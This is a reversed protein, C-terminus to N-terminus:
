SETGHHPTRPEPHFYLEARAGGEDRNRIRIVGGHLEVIRRTVSLGLGTGEGTANTTYFPDFIKGLQDEPIGPGTDEIELIAAPDGVRFVEALPGSVNAGASQIRRCATRATVRGGDPMAHIANMLLNVVAHDIKHPDIPVLPLDPDLETALAVGFRSAEHRVLPLAQEVIRNLSDAESELPRPASYDLMEFIVENARDAATAMDDLIERQEEDGREIRERFYDVGMKLVGLPNKVEHAVGAALRGVTKLKESEILQLQTQRLDEIAQRLREETEKQRTIDRSMVVLGGRGGDDDFFPVKSTLVWRRGGDPTPRSEEQNLVSVRERILRMDAADYEAGLGGSFLDASTRGVVQEPDDVGVDKAHAANSMTYRGAADKVFINDPATDLIARLLEHEEALEHEVRKLRTMDRSVCLIGAIAGRGDRVPWKSTYIWRSRGDALTERDAKGLVPEGTRLIAGENRCAEQAHERAFVDFDSRGILSAQDGDAYAEATARNVRVFRGELDKFYVRDPTGEMWAEFLRRDRLLAGRERSREVAFRIARVLARGDYSGEVLCTEAGERAMEMAREEDEPGALIIVPLRDSPNALPRLLGAAAGEPVAEVDLLAADPAIDGLRERAADLDPAHFVAFRGRGGLMERLRQAKAPDPAVLLLNL